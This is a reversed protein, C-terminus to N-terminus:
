KKAKKPKVEVEKKNYSRKPKQIVIVENIDETPIIDFVENSLEPSPAGHQIRQVLYDFLVSLDDMDTGLYNQLTPLTLANEIDKLDYGDNRITNNFVETPGKKIIGFQEAIKNRVQIPTELWKSYLFM